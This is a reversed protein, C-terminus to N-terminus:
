FTFLLLPVAVLATHTVAAARAARPVGDDLAGEISIWLASAVIGTGVIRHVVRVAHPLDDSGFLITSGLGAQIGLLSLNTIAGAKTASQGATQLIRVDSYIGTGEIFPLACLHVVGKWSHIKGYANGTTMVLMLLTFLLRSM